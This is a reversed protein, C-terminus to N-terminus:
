PPGGHNVVVGRLHGLQDLQHAHDAVIRLLALDLLAFALDGRGDGIRQRREGVAGSTPDYQPEGLLVSERRDFPEVRPGHLLRQALGALFHRRHHTRYDDRAREFPRVQHESADFLHQRSVLGAEGRGQPRMASREDAGAVAIAAHGRIFDVTKDLLMQLGGIVQVDHGAGRGIVEVRLKNGSQQCAHAFLMRAHEGVPVADIHQQIQLHQAM